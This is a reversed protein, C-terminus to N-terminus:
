PYEAEVPQHDVDNVVMVELFQGCGKVFKSVGSDSIGSVILHSAAL